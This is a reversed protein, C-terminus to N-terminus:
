PPLLASPLTPFRKKLRIYYDPSGMCEAKDPETCPLEVIRWVGSEKHLLAYFDEYRSRGDKSRPESHVWAWGESVRMERVVFVVDLRHLEMVKRRMFDLLLAREGSGPLPTYVKPAALAGDQFAVLWGIVFLISLTYRVSYFISIIMM